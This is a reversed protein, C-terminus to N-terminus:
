ARAFYADLDIWGKIARPATGITPDGTLTGAVPDFVRTVFDGAFGRGTGDPQGWDATRWSTGEPAVIVGVHAVSEDLTASECLAYLDGPLPWTKGDPRRWAGRAAGQPELATTGPKFRGPNPKNQLLWVLYAPFEGCTSYAGKAKPHEKTVHFPNKKYNQSLYPAPLVENCLALARQRLPSLAPQDGEGEDPPAIGPTQVPVGASQIRHLLAWDVVLQRGQPSAPHPALSTDNGPAGLPRAGSFQGSGGGGWPAAPHAGNHHSGVWPNGPPIDFLHPDRAM